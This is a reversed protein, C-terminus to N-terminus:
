DEIIWKTPTKAYNESTWAFAKKPDVRYFPKPHDLKYKEKYIEVIKDNISDDKEVSVTGELIVVDAGSETHVIIYPNNQLNKRNKTDPGGGFFFTTDLWIGWIPIAHPNGKKTTTSLWYFKSKTMEKEVFDWEMLGEESEEIGYNPIFPRMRVVKRTM